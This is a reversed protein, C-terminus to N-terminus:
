GALESPKPARARLIAPRDSPRTIAPPPARSQRMETNVLLEGFGADDDIPKASCTRTCDSGCRERQPHVGPIRDGRRSLEDCSAVWEAVVRDWYGGERSTSADITQHLSEEAVRQDFMQGSPEEGDGGVHDGAILDDM